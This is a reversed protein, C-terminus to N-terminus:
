SPRRNILDELFKVIRPDRSQSLWFIAKSRLERDPDDKAIAMLKDVAETDRRQSLTFIIQEKMERETVHDYLQSMQSLSVGRTQGAWFLAKKRMEIDERDNTAVDMLWKENGQGSQQSLSFLIKEKLEQDNVKDFQNRLFEANDPDRRQGLWFIADARVEKPANSRQVLSRIAQQGKASRTQSLSFVAKKMLEPDTAKDLIETLIDVARESNTQGLWFVAQERVESSPDNRAVNMLIDAAQDGRKQSVLFVAKKRLVECTEDRRNLLRQLVPLADDSNMQLLANLAAIRDDNDDDEKPCGSSSSSSSSSTTSPRRQGPEQQDPEAQKVVDSACRDDGQKALSGCIQIRLNSALRDYSTDYNDKLTELTSLATSYNRSGGAKYLAFARYYLASGARSTGSFRDAVRQFLQAARTYNGDNLADMAERYASDAQQEVRSDREARRDAYSSSREAGQSRASQQARASQGGTVVLATLLLATRIVHKHSNM